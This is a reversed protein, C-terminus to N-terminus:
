LEIDQISDLAKSGKEVCALVDFIKESWGAILFVNQQALSLPAHGHGSLDFVYLRADPAVKSTYQRWVRQLHVGDNNANWLQCDTFFMIKDMVIGRQCLDELVLHGNTAYGVEGERQICAQVNALIPSAPVNITKWTTGFMGMDARKCKSRLLMGLMLGVDFNTVTSNKSVPVMMSGSVDCAILVRCDEQFGSINAVSAQVASELADLVLDVSVKPPNKWRDIFTRIISRKGPSRMSLLQRYASLFRFPLQRSTAVNAANSIVGVVTEVHSLSVGANLINRLNRLLAMYGLKNSDILSEWTARVVAAREASGAPYNQGVASLETEWTYPVALSDTVIANFIAQQNADKAKPHVLFLADRLTIAGKRNYKAFQYADFRNFAAALGKQIQKSLKGLQKEGSRENVLAYCALLETIEDARLIIRDLVNSVLSTGSTRQALLCAIYLPMSRLNMKTRAYVALKAVFTPDCVDVLTKIREMRQSQKDYASDSLASTVVATYLELHPLMPYAMSGEHNLITERRRMNTNFKM